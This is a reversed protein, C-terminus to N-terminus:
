KLSKAIMVLTELSTDLSRANISLITGTKDDVVVLRAKLYDQNWYGVGYMRGDQFAYSTANINSAALKAIESQVYEKGSITTTVQSLPSQVIEIEGQEPSYSVNPDCPSKSFFKTTAYIGPVYDASQLSYGAPLTQPLLLPFPANEKVSEISQGCIAKDNGYPAVVIIIGHQWPKGHYGYEGVKTFTFEFSKGPKIIVFDNTMTYFLPNNDDDAEIMAPFIDHNVWRVTNNVGLVATMTQPEFNEQCGGCSVASPLLVVSIQDSTARQSFRTYEGIFYFSFLAILGIGIALGAIVPIKLSSDNISM